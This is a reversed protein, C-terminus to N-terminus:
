GGSVPPICAIEANPSIKTKDDAYETDVAFTMHGVLGALEPIQDAMARRLQTITAKEALELEVSDCGVVQRAVAFLRIRVIV